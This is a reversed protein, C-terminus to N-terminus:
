LLLLDRLLLQAIKKYASPADFVRKRLPCLHAFFPMQALLIGIQKLKIIVRPPLSFGKCLTLGSDGSFLHPLKRLQRM